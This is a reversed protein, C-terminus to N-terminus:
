EPSAATRALRFGTGSNRNEPWGGIRAAARAEQAGGQWSGGRIVRGTGEAPGAPDIVDGEYPGYWDHVWESVNGLMDYLGWANLGKSAVPRTGTRANGCFWAIDLLRTDDCFTDTLDGAYTATTTGARAAYEWEAETPLRYGACDYITAGGIVEGSEGYCPALGELESLTNAYLIAVNWTVQDIPCDAGCLPFASLNRGLLETFQAQTVETTQLLFPRTLTVVHQTEDDSRGLEDVPSGMRFTIPEIRVFGEPIAAGADNTDGVDSAAAADVGADSADGGCASLALAGACALALAAATWPRALREPRRQKTTM